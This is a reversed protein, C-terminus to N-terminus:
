VQELLQDFARRSRLGVERSVVNGEADVLVLTPVARVGYRMALDANAPDDSNMTVLKVKKGAQIADEAWPRVIKCPPCYTTTFILLEM